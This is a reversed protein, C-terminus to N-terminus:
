ILVKRAFQESTFGFFFFWNCFHEHQFLNQVSKRRDVSNKFDTFSKFCAEMNQNCQILLVKMLKTLWVVMKIPETISIATYVCLFAYGSWM